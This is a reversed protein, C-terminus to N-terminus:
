KGTLRGIINTLLSIPTLIPSLVLPIILFFTTFFAVFNADIFFLHLKEIFDPNDSRVVSFYEKASAIENGKKDLLKVTISYGGICTGKIQARTKHGTQEDKIYKTRLRHGTSIKWEIKYDECQGADYEIYVEATEGFPLVTDEENEFKIEVFAANDTDGDAALAISATTFLLAACLIVSLLKKLTKNM